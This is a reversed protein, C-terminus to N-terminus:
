GVYRNHIKNLLVKIQQRDRISMQKAETSTQLWKGVNSLRKGVWM